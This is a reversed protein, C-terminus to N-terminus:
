LQMDGQAKTEQTWHSGARTFITQVVPTNSVTITGNETLHPVEISWDVYHVLGQQRLSISMGVDPGLIGKYEEFTASMYHPKKILMGYLGAADIQEIGHGLPKLSEIKEPEYVDDFQWLGPCPIGHRGIQVGTVFGAFPHMYYAKTLKGLLKPHVLGDDELLLLYECELIHQKAFEHIKAIRVRRHMTNYRKVKEKSPYQVCLRGKFKSRETRNRVDLYLATDGDVITLLNTKDPDCELLELGAFILDLYDPRSILLLITTM